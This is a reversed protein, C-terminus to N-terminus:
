VRGFYVLPPFMKLCKILGAKGQYCFLGLVRHSFLILLGHGPWVAPLSCHTLSHLKMQIQIEEDSENSDSSQRRNSLCCCEIRMPTCVRSSVRCTLSRPQMSRILIQYKIIQPQASTTIHSHSCICTMVLLSTRNYLSLLLDIAQVSM